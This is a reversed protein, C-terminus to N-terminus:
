SLSAILFIIGLLLPISAFISIIIKEILEYKLIMADKLELFGLSSISFMLLSFLFLAINM